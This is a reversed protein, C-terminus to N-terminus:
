IEFVVIVYNKTNTTTDIVQKMERKLNNREQPTDHTQIMVGKVNKSKDLLQKVKIQNM